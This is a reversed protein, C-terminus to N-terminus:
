EAAEQSGKTLSIHALPNQRDAQGTGQHACQKVGVCKTMPLLADLFERLRGLAAPASCLIGPSQSCSARADPAQYSNSCKVPNAGPRYSYGDYYLWWWGVPAIPPAIKNLKPAHSSSFRHGLGQSRTATAAVATM